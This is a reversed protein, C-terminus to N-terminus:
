FYKKFHFTTKQFTKIHFARSSVAKNPYAIGFLNKLNNAVHPSM